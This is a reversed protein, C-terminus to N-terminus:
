RQGSRVVPRALREALELEALVTRAVPGRAWRIRTVPQFGDAWRRKYDVDGMCLDIRHHGLRCSREIAKAKLMTGCNSWRPAPDRGTQYFFCTGALELTVLTAIVADGALLEHFAVEGRRAGIRAAAAFAEFRRVFVSAKRWRARHLRELTEVARDTDATAVERYRVGLESFRREVRRIEQRLKKARCALYEEFTPPVDIWPAGDVRGARGGAPLAEGLLADPAVGRFDVIRGGPRTLWRWVAAAVEGGYGPAAVLDLDHPALAGEGPLRHRVVVRSRDTVVALGGVLQGGEVLLLFSPRADATVAELWWSRMFPSPRASRDVLADWEPAFEGLAPRVETNV